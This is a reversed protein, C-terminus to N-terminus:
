DNSYNRFYCTKFLIDTENNEISIMEKLFDSSIEMKAFSNKSFLYLDFEMM